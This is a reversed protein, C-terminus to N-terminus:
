FPKELFNQTYYLQYVGVGLHTYEENLLAERHDQSNLWGEVVSPADPYQAAINEGATVYSIEKVALREQLGQGDLSNHSFYDNEAMDKSHSFAVDRAQNEWQLQDRGYMHRHVNTIEFIQQEMGSEIEGWEQKTPPTPEPLRGRYHIEYPHLKLLTEGNLLRISSLKNTFTDFYCQVFVDDDIKILPRMRLDDEKLYFIYSSVENEYVVQDKLPFKNNIKEYDQGIFLSDAKVDKGTAFITVIKEDQVGFQIHENKEDTYIYWTYDYASMDKRVPDKWQNVLDTVSKGMWQFVDSQDHYQENRNQPTTKTTKQSNKQVASNPATIPDHIFVDRNITLFTSLGILIIISLIQVFRM